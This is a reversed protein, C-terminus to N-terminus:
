RERAVAQGEIVVATRMARECICEAMDNLWDSLAFQCGTLDHQVVGTCFAGCTDTMQRLELLLQRDDDTVVSVM